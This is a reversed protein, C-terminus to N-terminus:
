NSRIKKVKISGDRIVISIKKPDTDSIIQKALPAEIHEQLLRRIDRAGYKEKTISSLWSAIRQDIKLQIGLTNIRLTLEQLQKKAIRTLTKNNLTQFHCIKDLRNLLEPRFHEELENQLKENLTQLRETKSKSFGLNEGRLKELGVNSTLIIVAHRFSTTKGTSDTLEGEELIQLLLAQIDPHAKEIEDFLVVTHPRRRVQDTLGNEERYGVYGAPSGLLKSATFREAYESMDLRIIAKPDGYFEKAVSKALASKGVGSPGAFLLSVLPRNTEGIGSRARILADTLAQIAMEQGIIQRSFRKELNSLRQKEGGLIDQVSLGSLRSTIQAIEERGITPTSDSLKVDKLTAIKKRLKVEQNKYEVADTFREEIVAQKKAKEIEKLSCMILRRKDRPLPRKSKVRVSSAAEDILDFAKDPLQKDHLYRTSFEVAADIAEPLIKVGHFTEYASSVGLLIERTEKNSPEKIDVAQFRRELASDTEIYKKFDIPTTAGICRIDGRALAPKLINAADLSGSNAGAGSLTHIEDIFLIVDPNRAAEETLQRLRGEFEGRYMTGAILTALDLTILRKGQLAPPVNGTFIKKALGEVIATKGVGPEGLLLPNNKTRRCLIEMVREVEKKRGIVPDLKKQAEETTLEHGFFDLAPTKNEDVNEEPTEQTKESVEKTIEPFHSTNQLVISVQEKLTKKDTLNKYLVKNIESNELQLLGSLLHETGVYLHDHSNAILVAKEIAQKAEKSLNPIKKNKKPELHPPTKQSFPLTISVKAKNLIKSGLGGKQTGIAWLLHQASVEKQEQEIALSLARTLSTKLNSTFKDVIDAM